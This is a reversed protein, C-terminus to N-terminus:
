MKVLCIAHVLQTMGQAELDRILQAALADDHELMRSLAYVAQVAAADLAETSTAGRAAVLSRVLYRVVAVRALVGLVYGVLSPSKVYWDRLVLHTAYREVVDDLRAALEGPLPALARYARHRALVDGDPAGRGAWFPAIEDVLRQLPPPVMRAPLHLLARVVSMAFPDDITVRGLQAHLDDLTEPRLLLNGLEGLQAADVTADRRLQGRTRDALFAVFFLRSSVPLRRVGLLTLILGRVALFTREYDADEREMRQNIMGRGFLPKEAPVLATSDDHFLLQRAVEPCSTTGVLEVRDGIRGLIRPHTACTNSLVEEGYRAQISCLGDAGYLSCVNDDRLVVLSHRHKGDGDDLLRIAAALEAREAPSTMREHLRDHHEKDVVIRWDKCCTDECAGALCQFRTM